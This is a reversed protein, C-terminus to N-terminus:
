KTHEHQELVDIRHENMQQRAKIEAVSQLLSAATPALEKLNKVNANLSAIEQQVKSLGDLLSAKDADRIALVGLFLIVTSVVLGLLGIFLQRGHSM